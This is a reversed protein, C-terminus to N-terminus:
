ALCSSLQIHKRGIHVYDYKVTIERDVVGTHIVGFVTCITTHTWKSHASTPLSFQGYKKRGGEREIKLARVEIQEISGQM